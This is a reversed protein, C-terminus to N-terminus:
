PEGPWLEDALARVLKLKAVMDDCTILNGLHSSAFGCQPSVSLRDLAEQLSQGAGRAMHTAADLVKAKLESLEELKPFKSSIVGLIVNKHGPLHELPEFTGSRETDYELYYTDANIEQFLKISVPDYGGESVHRSLANGRCVHIALHMDAPRIICGNYLRVYSDFLSDIDEGAEKFGKIMIESCFYALNPDDITVHRCGADYLIQLETRYAQAIDNLYDEDNTYAEKTYARGKKYRLHFLEPNPLSIKADKVQDPSLLSKITNWETLVGSGVHEIKSTCILLEGSISALTKDTWCVSDPVYPRLLEAPDRVHLEEFGKLNYFIPGWFDRRRYEGDTVARFGLEQQLRVVQEIAEDEAKRMEADGRIDNVSKNATELALRKRTESM